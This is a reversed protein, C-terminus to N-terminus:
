NPSNSWLGSQRRVNFGLTPGVDGVVTLGQMIKDAENYVARAANIMKQVAPQRIMYDLAEQVEAKPISRYQALERKVYAYEARSLDRENEIKTLYRELRKVTRPNASKYERIYKFHVEDAIKGLVDGPADVLTEAWGDYDSSRVGPSIPMGRTLFHKFLDGREEQTLQGVVDVYKFRRLIPDPIMGPKNTLAISFVGEYDVLGDLVEQLVREMQSEDAHQMGIDGHQFWADFEDLIVAVPKTHRSGQRLNTAEEYV